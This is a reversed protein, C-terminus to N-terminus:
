AWTKGGFTSFELIKGRQTEKRRQKMLMSDVKQRLVETQPLQHFLVEATLLSDGNIGKTYKSNVSFCM